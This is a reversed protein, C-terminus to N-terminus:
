HLSRMDAKCSELGCGRRDSLLFFVFFKCIHIGPEKELLRSVLVVLAHVDMSGSGPISRRSLIRFIGFFFFFFLSLSLSLYRLLFPVSVVELTGLCLCCAIRLELVLCSIQM